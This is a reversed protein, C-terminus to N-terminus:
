HPELPGGSIHGNVIAIVRMKGLRLDQLVVECTEGCAKGLFEAMRVAVDMIDMIILFPLGEV